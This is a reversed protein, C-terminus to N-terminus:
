AQRLVVESQRVGEMKSTLQYCDAKLCACFVWVEGVCLEM